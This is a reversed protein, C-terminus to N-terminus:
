QGYRFQETGDGSILVGPRPELTLDVVLEHGDGLSRYRYHTNTLEIKETRAAVLWPHRRRLGILSTHARFVEAGLTSLETPSHPFMPRVEDDGGHREYKTGTYGQEDGYYISPVGSTTMLVALALVATDPGVQTAIRTVDHNGIFTQPVFADTFTNHRTLAWDLEFFNGDKLSSWTAKWLEYETVSDVGSDRVFGVYDGHIMEGFVWADPHHHRVRPLVRTWFEAPTAYAADLRWADAGRDLWHNMVDSVLDAVEPRSHDFEVLSGHGEFVRDSFLDPRTELLPHDRGVHNFVGDLCLRVGRERCAAVLADWDSEDGLRPDIAYHDVTDYGHTSSAFIPGLLLGNCGLEVLYDLWGILDRLTRHGPTGDHDFIPAGLFGLPYVQWWIAHRAWENGM